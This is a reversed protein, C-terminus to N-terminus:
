IIINMETILLSYMHIGYFSLFLASFFIVIRSFYYIKKKEFKLLSCNIM